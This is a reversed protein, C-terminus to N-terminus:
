MPPLLLLYSWIHCINKCKRDCAWLFKHGRGPDFRPTPYVALSWVVLVTIEDIHFCKLSICDDPVFFWKIEYVTLCIILIRSNRETM